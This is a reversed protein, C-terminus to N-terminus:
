HKSSLTIFEEVRAKCTELSDLWFHKDKLDINVIAAADEVHCVTTAKLMKRYQEVFAKGEQEYKRVLGRAFLGGFAYPFNYFSLSSSYYHSKNVWMYPHLYNPDLADGYATKQAKLMIECCDDAFLFSNRRREFVESEFLYRSYIDCIIQTVDQLQKEILIMKKQPDQEEDIAANMIINENFTSATEAVPMSYDTNLPRHNEIMMGHYAHGLEHALTVIDGLEGDYNSLVRSQKIFPLNYCFAGGVKGKRPYFDIWEEDFAKEIMDALDKAFPTFHALLYDKADTLSFKQHDDEFLQLPAFLDYWPLGNKHGLLEAKRKLYSHFVPLYEQIAEMMGDLTKREMRSYYLTMDLPSDFGRLDSITNVQSKIHNLSFAVSQKIADYAALEAEYADKRVKSDSDYALNRVESLTIVGDKYPVSLTSTLYEQLKGWADGASLNLKAIVEEVEESLRYKGDQKTQQLLYEYEKLFASQTCLADMDEIAQIYADIKALAKACESTIQQVQTFYAVTQADTTDTAQRLALYSGLKGGLLIFAEESQLINTVSNGEDDHSLTDPLANIAQVSEKLKAIDASFQPDDYGTYLADLSWTDKM